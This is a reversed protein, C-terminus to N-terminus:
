SIVLKWTADDLANLTRYCKYTGFTGINVNTPEDLTVDFGSSVVKNISLYNPVILWIYEGYRTTIIPNFSVGTTLAKSLTMAISSTMVSASSAGYFCLYRTTSEEASKNKTTKASFKFVEKMGQIPSEFTFSPSYETPNYIKGVYTGNVWKEVYEEGISPHGTDYERMNVDIENEYVPFNPTISYYIKLPFVEADIENVHETLEDIDERYEKGVEQVDEVATDGSTEIANVAIEEDASIKSFDLYDIQEEVDNGKKMIVGKASTYPTVPYSDVDELQKIAFPVIDYNIIYTFPILGLQDAYDKRVALRVVQGDYDSHYTKDHYVMWELGVLGDYVLICNNFGLVVIYNGKNLTVEGYYYDVGASNVVKSGDLVISNM